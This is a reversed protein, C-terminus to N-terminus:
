LLAKVGISYSQFQPSTGINLLRRENDASITFLNTARVFFGLEKMSIKSALNPFKYGIQVVPVELFDNSRLWQTSPRFNNSSTETTLRPYTATARTDVLNNEQDTYYAWRNKIHNPYKRQGYVWYYPDNDFLSQGTQARVYTFFDLNKYSLNVNLVYDFSPHWNGIGTIDNQDIIGDENVDKYKIDGPYVAGFSPKPITQDNPNNIRAIEEESFFGEAILGWRTDYDKGQKQRHENGAGYDPENVKNYFSNYNVINLGLNYKLNGIDDTYQIGAEFGQITHEEFNEVPIFTEGGLYAPYLDTLRALENSRTSKFVNGEFFLRYELLATEFGINIETREVWTLLPNGTNLLTIRNNGNGDNYHVFSGIEYEDQYMYYNDFGADQDTRILGASSKLKLFNILASNFFDEESIIWALGAAPAFGWKNGNDFRMSGVHSASVEALYKNKFGYHIRGAYNATKASTLMESQKYSDIYNLATISLRHNDNFDRNFTLLNYWGIKRSFNVGSIGQTGSFKDVGIKTLRLSDGSHVVPEYVAYTNSQLENFANFNDYGAYTKIKLGPVLSNLNFELGLNFESYREISHNYGGLLFDGYINETYISSGGLVYNNFVTNASEVLSSQSSEVRDIPILHPFDNPRVTTSKNWFNGGSYRPSNDFKFVGIADIYAKIFNNVNIDFNGRLNFRNASGNENGMNLLTGTNNWGTHLYYTANENGGSLQAMVKSVPRVNKLFESTYFQQNPYLVPDAGERTKDIAEQSYFPDPNGDNQWAENYYYMYDAADMYDPYMMPVDMGTEAIISIDSRNPKGRKTTILIVGKDAYTGYVARSVPDKFITIEEIEQLNLEDSINKGMAGDRVLGDVVVTYGMGRIDRGGFNGLIRAEIAQVYNQNVDYKQINETKVNDVAGVIDYKHQKGYPINIQDDEGKLFESKVLEISKDSIKSVDYRRPKYGSKEFLIMSGPPVEVSFKGDPGTMKRVKGNDAIVTVGEVPNGEADTVTSSVTVMNDMNDQANSILHIAVFFCLLLRKIIRSGSIKM